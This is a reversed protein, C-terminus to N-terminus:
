FGKEIDRATRMILAEGDIPGVVQVSLPLGNSDKGVPVAVAPHGTVNWLVTHVVAGTSKLMAGVATSDQFEEVKGPRTATTPTLLVDCDDFLSQTLHTLHESHSEAWARLWMPTARAIRSLSRSRKDLAAPNEILTSEEKISAFFMALFPFTPDPLRGALPRVDYGLRALSGAAERVARENEACTRVVPSLSKVTWRVRLPCTHDLARVLHASGDAIIDYVLAADEVTTTLAGPTGLTLWLSHYPKTPVKGRQPKLGVLGCHASPIRISGGGDGGLGFPVIGAAVAAATGGSSGGPTRSLDYPNRTVGAHDSFTQPWAGFEPMRTKAVPIAGAARLRAVIESDATKIRVNAHTGFTTPFGAVDIEDKVVFPVGHLPGRQDAPMADLERAQQRATEALVVSFANLTPGDAEVHKLVAGVVELASTRDVKARWTSIANKTSTHAQTM